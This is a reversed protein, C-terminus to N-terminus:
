EQICFGDLYNMGDGFGKKLWEKIVVTWYIHECRSHGLYRVHHSSACSLWSCGTYAVATQGGNVETHQKSTSSLWRSLSTSGESFIQRSSSNDMGHRSGISHFAHIPKLAVPVLYKTWFLGSMPTNGVIAPLEFLVNHISIISTLSFYWCKWVMLESSVVIYWDQWVMVEDSVRQLQTNVSWSSVPCGGYNLIPKCRAWLVCDMTSYETMWKGSVRQMDTNLLGWISLTIGYKLVWNM